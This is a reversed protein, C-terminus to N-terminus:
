IKGQLLSSAHAFFYTVPIMHIGKYSRSETGGYVIFRRAKPYDESFLDLAKFDEERLRSSSKFEFALFGNEGYLILDVEEHKRTRWHFFEFGTELYHNLAM